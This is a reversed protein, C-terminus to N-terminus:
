TQVVGTGPTPVGWTNVLFTSSPPRASVTVSTTGDVPPPDGSSDNMVITLTIIDGNDQNGGLNQGNIKAYVEVSNSSYVGGAFQRHILLNAVGLGYYGFSNTIEGVGPAAGGSKVATTADIIITGCDDLLDTWETNKGTASGGSRAMVIEIQGAANFFYRTADPSTWDLTITHVSSVTWSGAASAVAVTPTGTAVAVLKNTDLTIINSAIASIASIATGATPAPLMASLSSGQHSAMVGMNTLMQAWQIASEIEYGTTVQPLLPSQGYGTLSVGTGWLSNVNPTGHNVPGFVPDGSIFENYHDRLILQGSNYTM